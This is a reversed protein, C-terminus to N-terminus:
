KMYTIKNNFKIKSYDINPHVTPIRLYERFIQIEENEEWNQIQKIKEEDRLILSCEM